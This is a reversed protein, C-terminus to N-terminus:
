TVEFTAILAIDDANRPEAGDSIPAEILELNNITSALVLQELTHGFDATAFHATNIGIAARGGSRVIRVAEAVVAPGVHGHTLTGVSVAGAYTDDDIVLPHTLDAEILDRYVSTGHHQKSAAQQLMQPSIDIGDINVARLRRLAAGALGTGCGIDAIAETQGVQDRGYDAFVRVVEERYVYKSPAIFGSEYTDAWRAYLVRNADPGDLAYAATLLDDIHGTPDHDTMAQVEVGGPM